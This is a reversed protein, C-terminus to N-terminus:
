VRMINPVKEKFINIWKLVRLRLSTAGSKVIKVHCTGYPLKGKKDSVKNLRTDVQTKYFQVRPIETVNSWYAEATEIDNDPYLHVEGRIDKWEVDLFRLCGAIFIQLIAPDSNTMSISYGVKAGEGWYLMLGAVFMERHNFGTDLFDLIEKTAQSEIFERTRQSKEKQAKAAAQRSREIRERVSPHYAAFTVDKLWGSLTSKSVGLEQIILNYSYGQKRLEIARNYLEPDRRAEMQEALSVENCGEFPIHNVWRWVTASALGLRRGIQGNSFGQERLAIAEQRLQDYDLM